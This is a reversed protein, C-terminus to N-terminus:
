LVVHWAGARAGEEGCGWGGWGRQQWAAGDGVNAGGDGGASGSQVLGLALPGLEPERHTSQPPIKNLLPTCPPPPPSCPLLSRALLTAHCAPLRPLAAPLSGEFWGRYYVALLNMPLPTLLVIRTTYWTAQQLSLTGSRQTIYYLFIYRSSPGSRQFRWGWVWRGCESRRGPVSLEQLAGHAEPGM